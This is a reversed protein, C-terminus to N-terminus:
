NANATPMKARLPELRDSHALLKGDSWVSFGSGRHYREGSRDWVVTLNHGHYRVRDLCFWDWTEAPLLPDIEFRDDARPVIGVLGTIVLDCFTSHNYYRSRREKEGTILWEGTTEDHYEGIYPRGDKQHSRAYIELANFYDERAVFTQSPGRLLNALGTLTQSTAFPWVAGDWECTGIGHTRFAPHRREATTLGRPAWFGGSDTFQAWARAHEPKALDFTWPLFGIAERADSLPGSELRVKFFQAQPDWLSDTLQSRLAEYKKEFRGALERRKALTAIYAIARANAAMYSNITPRINKATRSGSISEEMGDRVDYQWFLGDPRQRESEWTEYDVVLDDLMGVLFKQDLTVLYRDYLAAAAWNSYKHFHPAAAGNPGSRFWFKAYEDLPSQDRMWRGEALHHGFACSVTNYPGAHGVPPLFETLVLGDPTARLHKRFTWWRFYYTKKISEDPCDFRPANTAIWKLAQSNPVFNKVAEDDLSNFEDVYRAFDSAKIVTLQTQAFARPVFTQLLAAAFFLALRSVSALTMISFVRVNPLHM